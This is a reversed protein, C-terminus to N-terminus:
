PPLLDFFLGFHFIVIVDRMCWIEPVAYSHDHNTTCKHLIIIDQPKKKWKKLIKIKWIKLPYFPLFHDLNVFYETQWVGYKLFWVDYSQWKHYLHTFHYYIWTNKENKSSKWKQTTLPNFRCFITSCSLFIQGDHEIDWSGYMMHNHNKTCMHLIIIDEAFKKM